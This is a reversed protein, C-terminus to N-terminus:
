IIFPHSFHIGAVDTSFLKFLDPRQQFTNSLL